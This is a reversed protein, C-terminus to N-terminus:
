FGYAYGVRITGAGINNKGNAEGKQINLFGYNGGGEIFIKSNQFQFAFGVDGEIGFNGEHLDDKISISTDLSVPEPTLPQQMKDDAYIISSGSQTHKASVLLGVFPGAEVYFSLPSKSNFPFSFKALESVMLYNINAQSNYDAYLYAPVEGPPFYAAYGAPMPFAQYGDKKGGQVSYELQTSLSFKKSILFEYFAAFNPGVISSYGTNLPNQESGSATLNPISLGAKVGVYHRTLDQAKSQIFIFAILALCITLHKKM